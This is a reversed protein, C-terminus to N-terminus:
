SSTGSIRELPLKRDLGVKDGIAVEADKELVLGVRDGKECSFEAPSIAKIDWYRAGGGDGVVMLREGARPADETLVVWAIPEDGPGRTVDQVVMDARIAHAHAWDQRQLAAMQDAARDSRVPVKHQEGGFEKQVVDAMVQLSALAEGETADLKNFAGEAWSKRDDDDDGTGAYYRFRYTFHWPEGPDRWLACLWDKEEGVIFWFQSFYRGDKMGITM